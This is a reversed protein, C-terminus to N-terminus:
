ARKPQAPQKNGTPKEETAVGRKATLRVYWWVAYGVLVVLLLGVVFIMIFLTPDNLTVM